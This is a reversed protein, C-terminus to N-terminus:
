YLMPSCKVFEFCHLIVLICWCWKRSFQIFLEFIKNLHLVIHACFQVHAELYGYM